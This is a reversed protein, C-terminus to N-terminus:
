VYTEAAGFNTTGVGPQDESAEPFFIKEGWCTAKVYKNSLFLAICFCCCLSFGNGSM